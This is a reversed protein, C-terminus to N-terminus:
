ISRTEFLHLKGIVACDTLSPICRPDDRFDKIPSIGNTISCVANDKCYSGCVLYSSVYEAFRVMNVLNDDSSGELMSVYAGYSVYKDFAATLETGGEVVLEEMTCNYVVDLCADSYKMFFDYRVGDTVIDRFEDESLSESNVISLLGKYLIDVSETKGQIPVLVKYLLYLDRSLIATKLSIPMPVRDFLIAHTTYLDCKPKTSGAKDYLATYKAHFNNVGISNDANSREKSVRYVVFSIDEGMDRICQWIVMCGELLRLFRYMFPIGLLAEYTKMDYNNLTTKCLIHASLKVIDVRSIIDELKQLTFENSEVIRRCNDVLADLSERDKLSQLGINKGTVTLYSSTLLELNAMDYYSSDDSLLVDIHSKMAAVAIAQDLLSFGLLRSLDRMICHRATMLLENYDFCGLECLHKSIGTIYSNDLQRACIEIGILSAVMNFITDSNENSKDSSLHTSSHLTLLRLIDEHESETICVSSDSLETVPICLLKDSGFSDYYPIVFDNDVRLNRTTVVVDNVKVQLPKLGAADIGDESIYGIVSFRPCHETGLYKIEFPYYTFRNGVTGNPITYDSLKDFKIDRFMSRIDETSDHEAISDSRSNYFPYDADLMVNLLTDPKKLSWDKDTANHPINSEVPVGREVLNNTTFSYRYSMGIIDSGNKPRTLVALDDAVEPPPLIVAGLEVCERIEPLIFSDLGNGVISVLLSNSEIYDVVGDHPIGLEYNSNGKDVVTTYSLPNLLYPSETFLIMYMLLSSLISGNRNSQVAIVLLVVFFELIMSGGIPTRSSVDLMKEITTVIINPDNNLGEVVERTIGIDTGTLDSLLQRRLLEELKQKSRLEKPLEPTNYLVDTVLRCLAGARVGKGGKAIISYESNSDIYYKLTPGVYDLSIVMNSLDNGESADFMINSAIDFLMTNNTAMTTISDIDDKSVFNHLYKGSKAKSAIVRKRMKRYTSECSKRFEGAYIGPVWRISSNLENLIENCVESDPKVESGQDYLYRCLINSYVAFVADSMYEQYDAKSIPTEVKDNSKDLANNLSTINGLMNSCLRHYDIVVEYLASALIPATDESSDLIELDGSETLEDADDFIDMSDDIDIVDDVDDVDDVDLSLEIDDIIVEDENM